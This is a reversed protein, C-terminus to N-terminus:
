DHNSQDHFSGPRENEAHGKEWDYVSPIVRHRCSTGSEKLDCFALLLAVILGDQHGEHMGRPLDFLAFAL